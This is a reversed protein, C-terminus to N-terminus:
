FALASGQYKVNHGVFAAAVHSAPANGWAQEEAHAGHDAWGGGGAAGKL